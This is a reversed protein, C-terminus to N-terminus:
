NDELIAEAPLTARITAKLATAASEPNEPEWFVTQLQQTDFHTEIGRRCTYIVPRALGEAFGAEWYAGPNDNTLEAILFRCRQIEVRMRNIISGAKPDGDLRRLTFGTEEVAPRYVNEFVHDLEDDGYPMAMFASKSEVVERQLRGIEDWGALTPRLQIDSM